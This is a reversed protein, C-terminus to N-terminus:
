NMIVKLVVLYSAVVVILVIAAIITTIALRTAGPSRHRVGAIGAILAVVAVALALYGNSWVLIFWALVALALAIWAMASSRCYPASTDASAARTEINDSETQAM